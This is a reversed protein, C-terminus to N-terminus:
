LVVAFGTTGKENRRESKKELLVEKGELSRFSNKWGRDRQPKVRVEKERKKSGL